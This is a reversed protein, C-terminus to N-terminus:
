QMKGIKKRYNDRNYKTVQYNVFNAVKLMFDSPSEILASFVDDDTGIFFVCNLNGESHEDIIECIKQKLEEKTM